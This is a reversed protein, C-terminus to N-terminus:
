YHVRKPSSRAAHGRIMQPIRPEKFGLGHNQFGQQRGSVLGGSFTGSGDVSHSGYQTRHTKTPVGTTARALGARVSIANQHARCSGNALTVARASAIRSVLRMWWASASRFLALM